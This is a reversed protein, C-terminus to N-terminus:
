QLYPNTWDEKSYNDKEILPFKIFRFKRKPLKKDEKVHLALMSTWGTAGELDQLMRNYMRKDKLFEPLSQNLGLFIIEQLIQILRLRFDDEELHKGVWKILLISAILNSFIFGYNNPHPNHRRVGLLDKIDDNFTKQLEPHKSVENFFYLVIEMSPFIIDGLIRPKIKGLAKNQSDIEKPLKENRGGAYIENMKQSVELRDQLFVRLVDLSSRSKKSRTKSGRKIMPLCEKLGV